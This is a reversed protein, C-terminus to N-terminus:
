YILVIVLQTYRSDGSLTLMSIVSTWMMVTDAKAECAQRLVSIGEDVCNGQTCAKITNAYTRAEAKHKAALERFLGLAKQPECNDGYISIMSNWMSPWYKNKNKAFVEEAMAMNGCSAYMGLLASFLIENERMENSKQIWSHLVRGTEIRGSKGCFSIVTTLLPAIIFDSRFDIFELVQQLQSSQNKLAFSKIMQASMAANAHLSNRIHSWVEKTTENDAHETCLALAHLCM